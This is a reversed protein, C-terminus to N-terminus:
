KKHISNRREETSSNRNKVRSFRAELTGKKATIKEWEDLQNIVNSLSVM